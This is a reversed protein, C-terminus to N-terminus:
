LVTTSWRLSNSMEYSVAHPFDPHIGDFNMTRSYFRSPHNLWFYHRFKSGGPKMVGSLFDYFNILHVKKNRHRMFNRKCSTVNKRGGLAHELARCLLLPQGQRLESLPERIMFPSISMCINDFSLSFMLQRATIYNTQWEKFAKSLLSSHNREARRYSDVKNM